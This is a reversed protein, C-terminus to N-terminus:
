YWQSQKRNPRRLKMKLVRTRLADLRGAREVPIVTGDKVHIDVNEVKAFGENLKGEMTGYSM